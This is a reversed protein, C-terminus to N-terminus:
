HLSFNGCLCVAEYYIIYLSAFYVNMFSFKYFTHVAEYYIIYLSAFYVNM